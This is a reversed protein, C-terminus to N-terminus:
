TGLTFNYDVLTGIFILGNNCVSTSADNDVVFTTSESEFFLPAHSGAETTTLVTRNGTSIRGTKHRQKIINLACHSVLSGYIIICLLLM